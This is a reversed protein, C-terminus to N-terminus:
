RVQTYCEIEKYPNVAVLISGTYTYIQDREYRVKLNHNIGNEDIDSICTMDPVGKDPTSGVRGELFVPVGAM